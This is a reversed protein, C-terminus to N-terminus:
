CIDAAHTLFEDAGVHLRCLSQFDKHRHNSEAGPWWSCRERLAWEHLHANDNRPNTTRTDPRNGTEEDPINKKRVEDSESDMVSVTRSMCNAYYKYNAGV